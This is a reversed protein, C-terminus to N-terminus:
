TNKKRGFVVFLGIVAVLPIAVTPFEPIAGHGISLVNKTVSVYDNPDDNYLRAELVHNGATFPPLGYTEWHGANKDFLVEFTKYYTGDIYFDCYNHEQPTEIVLATNSEDTTVEDPFFIFRPPAENIVDDYYITFAQDYSYMPFIYFEPHATRYLEPISISVPDTYGDSGTIASIYIGINPHYGDMMSNTGFGVEYEPLPIKEEGQLSYCFFTIQCEDGSSLRNGEGEIWIDCGDNYSWYTYHDQFGMATNVNALILFAVFFTFVVSFISRQNKIIM